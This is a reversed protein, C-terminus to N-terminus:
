PERLFWGDNFGGKLQRKLHATRLADPWEHGYAHTIAILVELVDGVEELVDAPKCTRLEEAEEQLKMKLWEQRTELNMHEAQFVREKDEIMEHIKDRILKM